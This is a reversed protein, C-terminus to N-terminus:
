AEVVLLQDWNTTYAPSLRGRRMTWDKTAKVGAHGMGFQERGFRAQIQDVTHTIPAAHEDPSRRVTGGARPNAGRLGRAHRRGPTAIVM